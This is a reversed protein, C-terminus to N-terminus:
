SGDPSTQTNMERAVARLRIRGGDLRELVVPDLEGAANGAQSPQYQWEELEVTGGFKRLVMLLLSWAVAERDKVEDPETVDSRRAM